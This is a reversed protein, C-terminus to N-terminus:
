AAPDATGDPASRRRIAGISARHLLGLNEVPMPPWLSGIESKRTSHLM